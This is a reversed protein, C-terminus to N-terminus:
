EVDHHAIFLLWRSNLDSKNNDKNNQLSATDIVHVRTADINIANPHNQDSALIIFTEHNSADSAPEWADSTRM